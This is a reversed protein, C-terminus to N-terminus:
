YHSMCVRVKRAYKFLMVNSLTSLFLVLTSELCFPDFEEGLVEWCEGEMGAHGVAESFTSEDREKSLEGSKVTAAFLDGNPEDAVWVGAFGGDDVGESLLLDASGCGDRTLGFYPM